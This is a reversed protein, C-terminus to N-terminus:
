DDEDEDEDEDDSFDPLSRLLNNFTQQFIVGTQVQPDWVKGTVLFGTLPLINEELIRALISSDTEIPVLSLNMEGNLDPDDSFRIFGRKDSPGALLLAPSYMRVSRLQVFEPELRYDVIMTEFAVPKSEEGSVFDGIQRLFDFGPVLVLNSGRVDIKGEGSFDLRSGDLGVGGGRFALNAYMQGRLQRAEEEAADGGGEEDPEQLRSLEDVCRAVSADRLELWGRYTGSAIAYEVIGKLRGGYVEAVFPTGRVGVSFTGDELRFPGQFARAGQSKWGLREIELEGEASGLAFESVRGSARVVGELDELRVGASLDLGHPRVEAIWTMERRPDGPVFLAAAIDIPGSPDLTEILGRLGEQLRGELEARAPEDEPRAFGDVDVRFVRGAAGGEPFGGERARDRRVRFRGPGVRGRVDIEVPEGDEVVVLGEVEEAPLRLLDPVVRVGRPRVRAGVSAEADGRARHVEVDLDLRGVVPWAELVERLAPGVLDRTSRDVALGELRVALDLPLGAAPESTDVLGALRVDAGMFRGSVDALEIRDPIEVRVRGSVDEVPEAAFGTLSPHLPDVFLDVGDLDLVITGHPGLVPSHRVRVTADVEGRPRMALLTDRAEEAPVAALLEETLTADELEVEVDVLPEAAGDISGAPPLRVLGSAVYRGGAPLTGRGERIRVEDGDRRVEFADVGARAPFTELTLSLGDGRGTVRVDAPSRVRARLDTAAGAPGLATAVERLAGPLADLFPDDLEVRAATIEVDGRFPGGAPDVRLPGRARAAVVGPGDARVDLEVDIWRPDPDDEPGAEAPFVPDVVVRGTATLPYPVDAHQISVARLDLEVHPRVLDGPGTKAVRVLIDAEGGQPDFLATFRRVAPSLRSVIEPGIPVERARVEVGILDGAMVMASVDVRGGLALAGSADVEVNAGPRLTFTGRTDELRLPYDVYAAAIRGGLDSVDVSIHPDEMHPGKIIMVDAGGVTGEPGFLRYVERIDDPFAAVLGESLELEEARIALYLTVNEHERGPFAVGRSWVTGGSVEGSVNEWSVALHEPTTAAGPPLALTLEFAGGVERIPIPFGAPEVTVGTPRIAADVRGAGTPEVLADLRVDIDGGRPDLEEWITEQFKRPIVSKLQPTCSGGALTVVASVPEGEPAVVEFDVEPFLDKFRRDSPTGPVAYGGAARPDDLAFLAGFRAGGSGTVSLERTVDLGCSVGTVLVDSGLGEYDNIVRLRGGEVQVRLDSLLKPRSTSVEGGTAFNVDGDRDIRVVVEPEILTLRTVSPPVLELEAEIRAVRFLTRGEGGREHFVLDRVVARREWLSFELSGPAFYPRYDPALLTLSRRLLAELEAPNRLILLYDLYANAGLASAIVFLATLLRRRRM